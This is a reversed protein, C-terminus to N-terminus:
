DQERQVEENDSRGPFLHVGVREVLEHDVEKAEHVNGPGERVAGHHLGEGPDARQKREEKEWDRKRPENEERGPRQKGWYPGPRINM